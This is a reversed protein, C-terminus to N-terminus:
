ISPRYNRPQKSRRNESIHRLTDSPTLFLESTWLHCSVSLCLLIPCLFFLFGYSFKFFFFFLQSCTRSLPRDSYRPRAGGAHASRHVHRDGDNGLPDKAAGAQVRWGSGGSSGPNYMLNLVRLGKQLSHPAQDGGPHVCLRTCGEARACTQSATRKKITQPHHASLSRSHLRCRHMHDVSAQHMLTDTFFIIVVFDKIFRNWYEDDKKM